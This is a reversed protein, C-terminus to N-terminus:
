CEGGRCYMCNVGRAECHKCDKKPIDLPKSTVITFGAYSKQPIMSGSNVIQMDIKSPELIKSFKEIDNSPIGFFGPAFSESVYINQVEQIEKIYEDLLDRGMDMYATQWIDYYIKKSMPVGQIDLDGVTLLYIYIKIVDDPQIQSFVDCKFTIEDLNLETGLFCNGEYESILIKINLQDDIDQLLDMSKKIRKESIRKNKEFGCIKSFYEEAIKRGKEKDLILIENKM